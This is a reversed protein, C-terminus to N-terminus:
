TKANLSVTPKGTQDIPERAPSQFLMLDLITKQLTDYSLPYRISRPMVTETFDLIMNQQAGAKGILLKMGCDTAM